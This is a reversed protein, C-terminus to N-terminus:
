QVTSSQQPKNPNTDVALNQTPKAPIGWQLAKPQYVQNDHKQALQQSYM